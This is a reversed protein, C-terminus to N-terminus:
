HPSHDSRNRRLVFFSTLMLYVSWLFSPFLLAAATDSLPRFAWLTAGSLCTVAVSDVFAQTHCYVVQVFVDRCAAHKTRPREADLQPTPRYLSVFYVM